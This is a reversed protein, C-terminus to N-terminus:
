CLACERGRKSNQCSACERGRKSNQYSACERGRKSNQCSACEMSRKSNQCSAYEGRRKFNQRSACERGRKFTQCSACERGRKRFFPHRLVLVRSNPFTTCTCSHLSIGSGERQTVNHFSVTTQVRCWLGPLLSQSTMLPATGASDPLDGNPGPLNPSSEHPWSALAPGYNNRGAARAAGRGSGQRYNITPCVDGEFVENERARADDSDEARKATPARCSGSGEGRWGGGGGCVCVCM